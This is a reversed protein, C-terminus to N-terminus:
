VFLSTFKVPALKIRRLRRAIIPRVSVRPVTTRLNNNYAALMSLLMVAALASFRLHAAIASGTRVHPKIFSEVTPAVVTRAAENMITTEPLPTPTSFIMFLAILITSIWRISSFNFSKM